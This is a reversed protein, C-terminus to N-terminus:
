RCVFAGAHSTIRLAGERELHLRVLDEFRLMTQRWADDDTGVFALDRMSAAFRMIPDVDPVVLQGVTEHREVQDFWRSLDDGSHELNFRASPRLFGPRGAAQGLLGDLEVFHDLANTVALFAGGPVLVRRVEALTRDLDTVHYLMHNAMVAQAVGTRLAVRAADTAVALASGEAARTTALMGESLDAGVLVLGPRRQRLRALHTGPGCGLDVVIGTRPWDVQDLTWGHFDPRPQQYAYIARRDELKDPEAYAKTRLLHLDTDAPPESV